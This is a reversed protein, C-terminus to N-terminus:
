NENILLKKIIYIVKKYGLDKSKDPTIYKNLFDSYKKLM